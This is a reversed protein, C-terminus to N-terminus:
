NGNEKIRRYASILKKATDLSFADNLALSKVTEIYEDDEKYDAQKIKEILKDMRIRITPYTVDYEEALTKLSGSALAFKKLFNLDEVELRKIWLPIEANSIM